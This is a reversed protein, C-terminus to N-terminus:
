QRSLYLIERFIDTLMLVPLKNFNIIIFAYGTSGYLLPIGQAVARPIFAAVNFM